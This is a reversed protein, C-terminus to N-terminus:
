EAPPLCFAFLLNDFSHAVFRWAVAIYLSGDSSFGCLGTYGVTSM